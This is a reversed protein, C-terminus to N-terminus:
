KTENRSKYQKILIDIISLLYLCMEPGPSKTTSVMYGEPLNLLIIRLVELLGADDPSQTELKLLDQEFREEGILIRNTLIARLKKQTQPKLNTNVLAALAVANPDLRFKTCFHDNQMCATELTKPIQKDITSQM